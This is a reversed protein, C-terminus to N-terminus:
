CPAVARSRAVWSTRFHFQAPRTQIAPRRPPPRHHTRSTTLRHHTRPHRPLRPSPARPHPQADQPEPQPTDRVLGTGPGPLHGTRRLAPALRHGPHQPGIAVAAKKKGRRRALRRYRQGLFTDTGAASVAAEGLVRALYKDGHGTSAKGRSHGASENVRPAYRAWSTLHGPTPFRTMDVGIESIIVQATTAKVGPIECLRAVAPAFPAIQTTIQEDLGAIDRDYTDVHELM